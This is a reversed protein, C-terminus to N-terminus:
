RKFCVGLRPQAYQWHKQHHHLIRQDCSHTCQIAPRQHRQRCYDIEGSIRNNIFGFDIGVDFQNTREWSLSPVGIRRHWSVLSTQM